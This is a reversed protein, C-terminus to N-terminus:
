IFICTNLLHQVLVCTQAAAEQESQALLLWDDLYTALRMGQCRMPAIAAETCRVFASLSLNFPLVGGPFRVSPVKQLPSLHPCPFECGEYRGIYVLRETTPFAASM